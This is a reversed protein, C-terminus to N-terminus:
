FQKEGLESGTFMAFLHLNNGQKVSIGLKSKPTYKGSCWISIYPMLKVLAALTSVSVPLDYSELCEKLVLWINFPTLKQARYFANM